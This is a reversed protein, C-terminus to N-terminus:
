RVCAAALDALGRGADFERRREPQNRAWFRLGRENKRTPGGRHASPQPRDDPFPLRDKSLDLVGTAYSGEQEAAEFLDAPLPVQDAEGVVQACVRIYYSLFGAASDPLGGLGAQHPHRM